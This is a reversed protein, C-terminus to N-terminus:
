GAYLNFSTYTYRLSHASSKVSTQRERLFTHLKRDTQVSPPATEAAREEREYHSIRRFHKPPVRFYCQRREDFVYGPFGLPIHTSQM